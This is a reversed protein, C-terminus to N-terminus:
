ESGLLLRYLERQRAAAKRYIEGKTANPEIPADLNPAIQAVDAILGMAELALLAAGRASAEHEQSPYVQAGLTDAVIEQLVRSSLLAGGSGIVKPATHGLQLTACLREYVARLQYALSEMSARLMEAPSTHISIGAVTMRADAHWGLSREGSIFPLITLGHSDPELVRVLSEADRLNPLQLSTDMWNLLNGGESLAGGLVARKADILYLWLGLPPVVQEPPVVVRIASSTGITLSWNDVSACGSGVCATAGDGAAPFWPVDRLVPWASAYESTLGKVSDRMDGLQPFQEAKVGLADMLEEDWRHERTVLMGTGSAMSLTCVSQGLLRRHLYEGFSIWQAARSFVEPKQTALWRLKAPWYSAHLHAGTRAHVKEEALQKKLENAAAYPRTDEWTILPMIPSGSGDVGLLSHWFTDLAVAGIQQALPGAARLADSITLAVVDVLADADVSVEGENSTTLKYTRQSLVKPVVNGRADFLLSRTSSTGVDLALVFPPELNQAQQTM